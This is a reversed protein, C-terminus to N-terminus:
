ARIADEEDAHREDVRQSNADTSKSRPTGSQDHQGTAAL